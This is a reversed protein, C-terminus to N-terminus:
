TLACVFKTLKSGEFVNCDDEPVGRDRGRISNCALSQFPSNNSSAETYHEFNENVKEIGEEVQKLILSKLPGGYEATLREVRSQPEENEAIKKGRLEEYRQVIRREDYFYHLHDHPITLEHEKMIPKM